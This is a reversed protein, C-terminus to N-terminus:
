RIVMKSLKRFLYTRATGRKGAAILIHEPIGSNEFKNGFIANLISTVGRLPCNFFESDSYDKM